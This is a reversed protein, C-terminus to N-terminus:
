LPLNASVQALGRKDTEDRLSRLAQQVIAM